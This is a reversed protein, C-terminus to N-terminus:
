VYLLYEKLRERIEPSARAEMEICDDEYRESIVKGTRYLVGPLDQRSAPFRFLSLEGAMYTKVRQVLEPLGQGTKASVTVSDKYKKKLAAPDDVLDAKNLATLMPISDAKLEQLVSLTTEFCRDAQPDSADLVHILFDAQAAEELTSRFADVLAHPLRRIFGVTDVLLIRGGKEFELQRTSTDLTAFRKDEVLVDASTLANFLSSKGANTYGVLACVPFGQRERKKRQVERNKRVEGIEQELVAIRKELLRRDTEFKTEGSGKTGYRGGRQRSLDLYKHYLRPLAYSLEALEAQLEAEKTKARAAFIQIILEQRDLASIGTLTEWNRQQSPSLESDFILCDAQAAAAKEALEAAKGTGMGFKPHRERIHVTELGATELGLTDALGALERLTNEEDGAPAGAFKFGVLFARNPPKQTEYM